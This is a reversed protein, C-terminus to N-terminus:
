LLAFPWLLGFTLVETLCTHCVAFMPLTPVVYWLTYYAYNSIKSTDHIEYYMWIVAIITVFPLSTILAGIKGSRKAVESVLVIIFATIAYKCILFSM